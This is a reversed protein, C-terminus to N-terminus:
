KRVASFLLTSESSDEAVGVVADVAMHCACSLLVTSQYFGM